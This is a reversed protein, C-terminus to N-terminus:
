KKRYVGRQTSMIQGQKKLRFIVNHVKRQNFGTAKMLAATDMGQPSERILDYVIQTAPIRKVKEVVGNKVRVIKRVPARKVAPRPATDPGPLNEIAAAINAVSDALQGIYKVISQLEKHIELVMPMNKM